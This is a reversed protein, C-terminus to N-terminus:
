SALLHLNGVVIGSGAADATAQLLRIFQLHSDTPSAPHNIGLFDVRTRTPTRFALRMGLFDPLNENHPCGLGTSIRGIGIYESEPQFLGVGILNEPLQSKIRLLVKGGAIQYQHAVRDNVVLHAADRARFQNQIDSIPSVDAQLDSLEEATPRFPFDTM